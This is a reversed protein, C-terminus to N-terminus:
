PEGTNLVIICLKPKKEAVKKSGNTKSGQHFRRDGNDGDDKRKRTGPLPRESMTPYRNLSKNGPM